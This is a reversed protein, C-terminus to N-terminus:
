KKEFSPGGKNAIIIIKNQLSFPRALSFIIKLFTKALINLNLKELPTEDKKVKIVTLGNDTVIKKLTAPTFYLLHTIPYLTKLPWTVRKLSLRYLGDAILGLLSYQNATSILLLGDKKLLRRAKQLIQNPRSLHEIIDWMVLTDFEEEHFDAEELTTVSLNNLDYREKARAIRNPCNDIGWVEWGRKQAINLLEGTGCGVDLLRGKNTLSEVEELCDRYIKSPSDSGEEMKLLPLLEKIRGPSSFIERQGEEDIHPNMFIMSCSLCRVIQIEDLHYLTKFEKAGCLPCDQRRIFNM